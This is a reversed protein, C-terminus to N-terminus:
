IKALQIKMLGILHFFAKEDIVGELERASAEKLLKEDSDGIKNNSLKNKPVEIMLRKRWNKWNKEVAALWAALEKEILRKNTFIQM